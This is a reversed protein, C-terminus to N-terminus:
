SKINGSVPDIKFKKEKGDAQHVEIEWVKDAFEVETVTGYGKEEISKIIESAAETGATSAINTPTPGAMRATRTHSWIAM